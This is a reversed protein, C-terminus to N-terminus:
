PAAESPLTEPHPEPMPIGRGRETVVTRVAVAVLIVAGGAVAWWGPTEGLAIFVWVPNLVPEIMGILSAELATVRAIGVTFVAYALGIQVVGLFVIGGMDGISPTFVGPEQILNVPALAVLLVANGLVMAQSRAEQGTGPLRLFILFSAFAVGSGIACVNGWTDRAELRGVFFLAMGGLAVVVTVMDLRSPPEHLLRRALVLLYLPATYQLFIANAATTLKTATVFLLLMLAYSVALGWLRWGARWPAVWRPRLVLALVVGAFLSRWMTLGLADIEVWKIFLGGTSWLLAPRWRRL